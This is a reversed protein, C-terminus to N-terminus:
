RSRLYKYMVKHPGIQPLEFLEGNFKFGLAEYFQFANQRANFWLLEIHHNRLWSEGYVMLSKGVGKRRYNEDTAMGRLRYSSESPLQPHEEKEFTAVGIVKDQDFVALHITTTLRDKPYVCKEPELWPRLFKARLPLVTQYPVQKVPYHM